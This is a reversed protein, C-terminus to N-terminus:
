NLNDRHMVVVKGEGEQFIDVSIYKANDRLASLFISFRNLVAYYVLAGVDDVHFEFDHRCRSAADFCRHSGFRLFHIGDFHHLVGEELRACSHDDVLTKTFVVFQTFVYHNSSILLALM